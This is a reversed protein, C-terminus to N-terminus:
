MHAQPMYSMDEIHPRYAVYMLYDLMFGFSATSGHFGGHVRASQEERGVGSFGSHLLRRDEEHGADNLTVLPQKWHGRGTVVVPPGCVFPSTPRRTQQAAARRPRQMLHCHPLAAPSIFFFSPPPQLKRTLNHYTIKRTLFAPNRAPNKLGCGVWNCNKKKKKFLLLLYFRTM